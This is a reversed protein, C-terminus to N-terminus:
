MQTTNLEVNERYQKCALPCENMPNLLNWGKYTDYGKPNRTFFIKTNDLLVCMLLKIKFDLASLNMNKNKLGINKRYHKCTHPYEHM